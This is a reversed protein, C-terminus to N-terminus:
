SKGGASVYTDNAGVSRQLLADASYYDYIAQVTNTEATILSNEATIVDLITGVGETRSQSAADYNSRSATLASQAATIRSRAEERSLYASEVDAAIAQRSLELQAQAGRLGASAERVRARSSGADFLPYTVSVAVIKDLGPSPHASYTSSLTSELTPGANIKALRVSRRSSDVGIETQKLDPRHALAQDIYDSAVKTDPTESPAPVPQDPTVIDQNSTLGMAQRLSTQALRVNNRAQIVQVDANSYDAQAQLTDKKASSGAEVFAKTAELTTRARELGSEAVRVLDKTRLLQYYSTTVNLIVAERTNQVGLTASRVSNRSQAIGIERRGSDFITQQLSVSTGQTTLDFSSQNHQSTSNRYSYTPSIQPYWASKSQTLQAQAGELQSEASTIQKHNALATQIAVDLTLPEGPAPAPSQAWTRGLQALMAVAILSNLTLKRM